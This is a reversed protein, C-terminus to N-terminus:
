YKNVSAVTASLAHCQWPCAMAHLQPRSFGAMQLLRTVEQTSRPRGQGMALLYFAFYAETGRLAGPGDTMPEAILVRGGTPLARRVARLLLLAADDDHDHLVRVLTILDAGAPLPDARFDGGSLAVSAALGAAGLRLQAQAIVGPLDFLMLRLRPARSAAAVLFSGDGGGVDLLASHRAFPYADLLQEAVLPQTTSMLQTYASVESPPLGAADHNRAYGWYGALRGAPLAGRLLAVPDRLDDYLLPHHEIMGLVAPNGLLAAGIAGLGWHEPARRQVLRLSQAASLLRLVQGPPLDLRRAIEPLTLPGARLAELLGMRVCAMLVQSYVFGACLDFL